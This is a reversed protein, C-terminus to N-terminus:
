LTMYLEVVTGVTTTPRFSVLSSTSLRSQGLANGLIVLQQVEKNNLVSETTKRSSTFIRLNETKKQKTEEM